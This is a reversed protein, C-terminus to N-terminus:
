MAVYRLGPPWRLLRPSLCCIAVAKVLEPLCARASAFASNLNSDLAQQWQADTVETIRGLGM